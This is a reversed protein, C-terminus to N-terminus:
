KVIFRDYLTVSFKDFIEKSVHIIKLRDTKEIDLIKLLMDISEDVSCEAETIIGKNMLAISGTEIATMCYHAIKEEKTNLEVNFVKVLQKIDIRPFYDSLLLGNENCLENIFRNYPLNTKYLDDYVRKQVAIGVIQEYSYGAKIIKNFVINKIEVAFDNFVEVGLNLKNKFHYSILAVNIDAYKAIDVCSTTKFGKEYFLSKAALLVKEKTEDGARYKIM